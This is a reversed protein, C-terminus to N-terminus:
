DVKENKVEKEEVKAIISTEIEKSHSGIMALAEEIDIELLVLDAKHKFRILLNYRSM